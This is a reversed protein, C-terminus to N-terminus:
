EWEILFLYMLTLGVFVKLGIIINLIPITGLNTLFQKGILIGSLGILVFSLIGMTEIFSLTTIYNHFRHSGFTFIVLLVAMTLIVGGQFGGGPTLHGYLIISIGFIIIMPFVARTATKVIRSTM